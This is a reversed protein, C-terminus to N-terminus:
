QAVRSAPPAARISLAGCISFRKETGGYFNMVRATGANTSDGIARQLIEMVLPVFWQLRSSGKEVKKQWAALCDLGNKIPLKIPSVRYHM